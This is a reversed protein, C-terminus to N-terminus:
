GIRSILSKLRQDEGNIENAATEMLKAYAELTEAFKRYTADMSQFKAAFADQAEGKWSDSLSLVLKRMRSIVQEQQRKYERVKGAQSRINEPTIQIIPM